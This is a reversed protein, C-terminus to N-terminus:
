LFPHRATVESPDPNRPPCPVTAWASSAAAATQSSPHLDLALGPLQGAPIPRPLGHLKSRPGLFPSLSSRLVVAYLDCPVLPRNGAQPSAQCLDSPCRTHPSFKPARPRLGLLVATRLPSCTAPALPLLSSLTPLRPGAAGRLLPRHAASGLWHLARPQPGWATARPPCPPPPASVPPLLTQATIAM